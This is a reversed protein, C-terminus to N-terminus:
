RLRFLGWLNAHERPLEGSLQDQPRSKGFTGDPAAPHFPL